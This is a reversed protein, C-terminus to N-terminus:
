VFHERFGRMLELVVASTTTKVGLAENLSSAMKNESVGLKIKSKKKM